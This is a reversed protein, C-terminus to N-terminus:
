KKNFWGSKKKSKVKNNLMENIENEQMGALKCIDKFVEKLEKDKDINVHLKTIFLMLLNKMQIKNDSVNENFDFENVFSTDNFFNNNDAAIVFSDGGDKLKLEDKLVKNDKKLKFYEKSYKQITDEKQQCLDLLANYKDIPITQENTNQIISFDFTKRNFNKEFSGTRNTSLKNELELQSIKDQRSEIQRYLAEQTQKLDHLENKFDNETKFKNYQSIPSPLQPEPVWICTNYTFTNSNINSKSIMLYWHLVGNSKDALIEASSPSLSLTSSFSPTYTFTFTNTNTIHKFTKFNHQEYSLQTSTDKVYTKSKYQYLSPIDPIFNFSNHILEFHPITPIPFYAIHINHQSYAKCKHKSQEIINPNFTFSTEKTLFVAIPLVKNNISFTHQNIIYYNNINTKTVIYEINNTTIITHYYKDEKTITIYNVSFTNVDLIMPQKNSTFTLSTNNHETINKFKTPFVSIINFCVSESIVNMERKRQSNLIIDFSTNKVIHVNIHKIHIYEFQHSIVPEAIIQKPTSNYSLYENSNFSIHKFVKLPCQTVNYEIHSQKYNFAKHYPSNATISFSNCSIINTNNYQTNKNIINFSTYQKCISFERKHIPTVIEFSSHKVLVYPCTIKNRIYSLKNREIVFKKHANLSKNCVISFQMSNVVGNYKKIDKKNNFSMAVTKQLNFVCKKNNNNKFCLEFQKVEFVNANVNRESVYSFRLVHQYVNYENIFMRRYTKEIEEKYRINGIYEFSEKKIGNVKKYKDEKSVVNFRENYSVILGGKYKYKINNLETVMKEKEKNILDMKNQTREMEKMINQLTIQLAENKNILKEIKQTQQVNKDSILLIVNEKNKIDENNDSIKKMLEENQKILEKLNRKSNNLQILCDNKEKNLQNIENQAKTLEKENNEEKSLLLENKLRSFEIGLKKNHELLINKHRLEENLFKIQDQLSKITINQISKIKHKNTDKLTSLRNYDNKLSINQQNLEAKESILLKIENQLQKIMNEYKFTSQSSSSPSLQTKRTLSSLLNYEPISTFLTSSTRNTKNQFIHSSPKTFSTRM